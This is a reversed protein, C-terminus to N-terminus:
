CLQHMKKLCPTTRLNGFNESAFLLCIHMWVLPHRLLVHLMVAKYDWIPLLQRCLTSVTM